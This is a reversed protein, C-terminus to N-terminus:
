GAVLFLSGQSVCKLVNGDLPRTDAGVNRRIRIGNIVQSLSPNEFLACSCLLESVEQWVVDEDNLQYKKTGVLLDLLFCNKLESKFNTRTFFWIRMFKKSTILMSNGATIM